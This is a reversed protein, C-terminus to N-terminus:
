AAAGMRHLKLISYVAENKPTPVGLARGLTVVRGSLWDLEMRNGRELDHAMSARMDAPANKLFAMGEETLTEPLKVGTARGVAIVEQMLGLFFSRTDDDAVIPGIPLRTSATAASMTVLFIFKRWREVQMDEAIAIDIGAKQAADVFASLKADAANDLRGCRIRAFQSTQQIVGPEGIVTAVYACGAIVHEPGLIAALQEPADIGNQLTILRTEKGILPRAMKGAHETDWLKVAFLVIDVPGVAAPDDTAIPKPIHLDGLRSEVTLGRERIAKLHAGRALFAVEHGAAALRAGFYGGVGGAAMAAIRM